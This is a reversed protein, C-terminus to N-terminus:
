PVPLNWATVARLACIHVVQMLLTETLLGTGRLMHLPTTTKADKVYRCRYPGFFTPQLIQWFM